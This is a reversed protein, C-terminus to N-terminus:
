DMVPLSLNDYNDEAKHLRDDARESVSCHCTGWQTHLYEEVHAVCEMYSARHGAARSAVTLEAVARDLENANLISNAIHAVGYHQLWGLDNIFPEVTAQVEVYNDQAVNM